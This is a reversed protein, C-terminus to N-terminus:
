ELLFDIGLFKFLDNSGIIIVFQFNLLAIVTDM